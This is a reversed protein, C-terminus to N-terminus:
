LAYPAAYSGICLANADEAILPTEPTHFGTCIFVTKSGYDYFLSVDDGTQEPVVQGLALHTPANGVFPLCAFVRMPDPMTQWWAAQLDYPVIAITHPSALCAAFFADTQLSTNEVQPGFYQAAVHVGEADDALTITHLPSELATSSGIIIRWIAAVAVKPFSSEGANDLLARLMMAERGPRIYSGEIRHKAKLAGVKAVVDARRAFLELLHADIADIAARHQTLQSLFDDHMPHTIYCLVARDDDTSYDKGM